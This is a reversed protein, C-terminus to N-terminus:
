VSGMSFMAEWQQQHMNVAEIGPSLSGVAVSCLVLTFVPLLARSAVQNRAPIKSPKNKSGSSPLSIARRFDM